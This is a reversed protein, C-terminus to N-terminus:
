VLNDIYGDDDLEVVGFRRPDAVSKVGLCSHGEAMFQKMNMDFITDGLAIVLQDEDKIHEEAMSVAHAIGEMKTQVVFANNHEPYNELVYQKIKEGLYGIIFVFDRFGAEHLEDIIHALIPKGAVPILAKPHVHTHPRLRSGIGAVPIVAKM